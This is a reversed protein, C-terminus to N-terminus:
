KITTFIQTSKEMIRNQKLKSLNKMTFLNATWNKKSLAASTKEFKIENKQCSKGKRLFCMGKTKHFDRRNKSSM